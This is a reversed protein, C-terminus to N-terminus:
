GNTEKGLVKNLKAAEAARIEAIRTSERVRDRMSAKLADSSNILLDASDLATPNAIKAALRSRRILRYSIFTIIGILLLLFWFEFLIVM